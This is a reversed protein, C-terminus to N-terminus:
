SGLPWMLTCTAGSLSRLLAPLSGVGAVTQNVLVDAPRAIGQYAAYGENTYTQIVQGATYGQMIPNSADNVTVTINGGNGGTYRALDLLLQMNAYANGSLPTGTQDNTLFDGATIIGIHYNYVASTLTSMIAPLQATNVDTMSPFILAKYQVLNNINTLQSEDILDYSVGAMRAQNEAAMILESYATKSFYLNASTDSYVIAVRNSSAGTLPEAVVYPNSFDTPLFVNNNVDALVDAGTPSGAMLNNPLAIEITKHDAGYNYALNAVFTQGAAGASSNM